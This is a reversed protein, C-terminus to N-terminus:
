DCPQSSQTHTHTHTDGNWKSGKMSVYIDLFIFKSNHDIKGLEQSIFTYSTIIYSSYSLFKKHTDM